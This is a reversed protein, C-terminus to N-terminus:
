QLNTGADKIASLVLSPTLLQPLVLAPANTRAPFLLYLPIGSRGYVALLQSIEPNYDTWDGVMYVIGADKFAKQVETTELTSKENAICTICWDATLDVFVAKGSQRLKALKAQSFAVQDHSASKEQKQWTASFPLGCAAILALCGIIKSTATANKFYWFAIVIALCGFLLAMMGLTNTQNGFVWLLWIATAYLPFAFFQKLQEMWLGPKPLFKSAAPIFSILTLPLAMGLGLVAFILLAIISSQTIAYGLAASMFPATCPSAVVVALVGTFFAGPLGSKDTLSQGMSMWRHGINIVGSMSLGLVFFLYVLGAIVWSNQLQFGWGIASGSARLTLMLGAIAVFSLIVGTLYALSEKRAQASNPHRALQMVKISLVPLVCPMLNLILGGLLASLLIWALSTEVVTNDAVPTKGPKALAAQYSAASIMEATHKATDVAFYVSYPPYCLGADACGQATAKFLISSASSDPPTLPILVQEYYTEVKGFYEDMKKIGEPLTTTAVPQIKGDAGWENKFGHRYLYYHDALQWEVLWQGNNFSLDARYADEVKLFEEQQTSSPSAFGQSGGSFGSDACVSLSTLGCLVLVFCSLVRSFM